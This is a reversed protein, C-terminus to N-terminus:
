SNAFCALENGKLSIYVKLKSRELNNNCLLGRAHYQAEWFSTQYMICIHVFNKQGQIQCYNKDLSESTIVCGKDKMLSINNKLLVKEKFCM